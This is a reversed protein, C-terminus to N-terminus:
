AQASFNKGAKEARSPPRERLSDWGDTFLGAYSNLLALVAALLRPDWSETRTRLGYDFPHGDDRAELVREGRTRWIIHRPVRPMDNVSNGSLVNGVILFALLPIHLPALTWWLFWPFGRGRYGTAERAGEPEIDWRSRLNGGHLARLRTVVALPEGDAGSIEYRAAKRTASHTTVRALVASCAPDAWLVFARHGERHAAAYEERGGEPRLSLGAYALPSASRRDASRGESEGLTIELLPPGGPGTAGDESWAAWLQRTVM